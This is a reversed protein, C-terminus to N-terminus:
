RPLADVRLRVADVGRSNSAAAYVDMAREYFARAEAAAGSRAQNDGLYVLDLAIAPNLGLRRDLELANTLVQSAESTRGTRTFARGQLRWAGARESELTPSAALEAARTSHRIAIDTQGQELALHARLNELAALFTCPAVCDREATDAWRLAAPANGEDLHILAKRAAARAGHSAGFRQPTAILRDVAGHADAWQGLQAHILAINLLNAGALDYDEISQASALSERYLALAGAANGTDLARTGAENQARAAELAPSPPRSATSGCGGILLCTILAGVFALNNQLPSM